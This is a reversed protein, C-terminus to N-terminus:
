NNIVNKNRTENQGSKIKIEKSGNMGLVGFKASWLDFYNM